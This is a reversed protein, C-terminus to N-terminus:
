ANPLRFSNPSIVRVNRITNFRTQPTQTVNEHSVHSLQHQRSARHLTFDIELLQRLIRGPSLDLLSVLNRALKPVHLCDKLTFIKGNILIKVTGRGKCILNSSPNSTAIVKNHNSTLETFIEKDNFMHHTTGCDIILSLPTNPPETHKTTFLAELGTQHTEADSTRKNSKNRPPSFLEPHEAWCYEPKHTTNKPNHKGNRCVYTLKYPFSNTDTLLAASDEAKITKQFNTKTNKHKTLELLKDLVEQPNINANMSLILPDIIHDFENSDRSIKGLIPYAMIDPPLNIGIGAIDFLINACEKVYDAINGTFHLCEWKVWTRGRNTVTQSAYKSNIKVWLAKASKVTTSDIVSIIIEQHLRSLILQVAEVNAQSWHKITVPDSNPPHSTDKDQKLQESSQSKLDSFKSSSFLHVVTISNKVASFSFFSTVSLSTTSLCNNRIVSTRISLTHTVKHYTLICEVSFYSIFIHGLISEEMGRDRPPTLRRSGHFCFPTFFEPCVFLSINLTIPSKSEEAQGDPSQSGGFHPRLGVRRKGDYKHRIWARKLLTGEQSSLQDGWIELRPANRLVSDNM